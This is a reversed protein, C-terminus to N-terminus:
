DNIGELIDLIEKPLGLARAIRIAAMPPAQNKKLRILRYDMAESLLKLRQALDSHEALKALSDEKLGAMVYQAIDKLMAPATFHTAAVCYHDTGLLHLLVASSLAEGETPNTGKAFEDLLILSRQGASLAQKLGIIERGFSSLNEQHPNYNYSVHDFVPLEAAKSALPIALRAMQAHQGLTVLINTKGGMNPGTILSVRSGFDLDQAQYQRDQQELCLQTALNRAAKLRIAGAENLKPICCHYRIGFEARLFDWSFRSVSEIALKLQEKALLINDTLSQLVKEEAAKVAKLLSALQQTIQASEESEALRFRLNAIDESALHYLGSAILKDALDKRARSIVFEEKLHPLELSKAAAKLDKATQTKLKLQLEDRNGYLKALEASFAPCLRFSPLNLGEPDLKKYLAELEPFDYNKNLKHERCFAVLQRYHYIFSKIEFLEGMGLLDGPQPIAPVGFHPLLSELKRLRANDTALCMLDGIRAYDARLRNIDGTEAKLGAHRAQSLMEGELTILEFIQDLALAKRLEKIMAVM